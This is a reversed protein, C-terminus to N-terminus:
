PLSKLRASRDSPVTYPHPHFALPCRPSLVVVSRWVGTCTSPTPPVPVSVPIVAILVLPEASWLRASLDSPVTQAHPFLELPCNPSLVVVSRWVGTCTSPTPPVPWRLPM